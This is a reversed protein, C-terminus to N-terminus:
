TGLFTDVIQSLGKIAELFIQPLKKLCQHNLLYLMNDTIEKNADFTTAAM